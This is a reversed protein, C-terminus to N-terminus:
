NVVLKEGAKAIGYYHIVNMDEPIDKGHDGHGTEDIHSGHDPTYMILRNYDSWYKDFDQALRIFNNNQNKLANFAKDSFPTTEHMCDDYEQNYSLIFDNKNEKLLNITKEIVENDYNESYYDMQRNKFILDISSNEVAVIAPNKNGKIMSDFLTEVELVPKEYKTIGHFHPLAGTFMSAFCVPTVPIFVSSLKTIVPAYKIINNFEEPYNEFLVEGIADPAFILCKDIKQIEKEECIQILNNFIVKTSLEPYPISMLKCVSPTVSTISDRKGM